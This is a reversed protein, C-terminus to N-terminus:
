KELENQARLDELRVVRKNFRTSLKLVPIGNNTLSQQLSQSDTHMWKALDEVTIIGAAPLIQTM